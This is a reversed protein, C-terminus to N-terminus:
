GLGMDANIGDGADKPGIGRSLGIEELGYSEEAVKDQRRCGLLGVLLDGDLGEDEYRLLLTFRGRDDESELKLEPSLEVAVIQFESLLSDEKLGEVLFLGAVAVEELTAPICLFTFIIELGLVDTGRLLDGETLIGGEKGRGNELLVLERLLEGVVELLEIHVDM